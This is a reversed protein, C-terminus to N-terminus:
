NLLKLRLDNTFKASTKLSKESRAAIILAWRVRLFIEEVFLSKITRFTKGRGVHRNRRIYVEVDLTTCSFRLKKLFNSTKTSNLELVNKM